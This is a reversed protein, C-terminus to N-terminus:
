LAPGTALVPPRLGEPPGSAASALRARLPKVAFMAILAAFINLGGAIFFVLEWNGTRAVLVSALPVLLVAVGKSTYLLGTISTAYRSGFADIATAPVLTTIEGWAFFVGATLLVFLLPDHGFQVLALIGLGELMFAIFMTLERGINDSVWGFFPRCIGNMIRDLTLAFSLAPLTIGLLSVPIKDVHYDRAIPGLQAVAILGGALVVTSIIYLLWFVPQSLVEIPRFQRQASQVKSRGANLLALPPAVLFFSLVIIVAGQALGFSFFASQYGSAEIMRAIPVVTLASGAGFGASILGVALGRRDPFWKLANGICTAYVSGAGIGGIVASLYFMPLSSALSNLYWSLGVMVGGALCVRKPGIRDIIWGEFPLLWTEVLVFITFAIQIEAKSWGFKEHIPLVFLTWGYQLNAIMSMCVVGIAVQWWRSHGGAELGVLAPKDMSKM